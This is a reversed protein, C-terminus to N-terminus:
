FQLLFSSHLFFFIFTSIAINAAATESIDGFFIKFLFILFSFKFFIIKLFFSSINCLIPDRLFFRGLTTIPKAASVFLMILFALFFNSSLFHSAIINFLISLFLLIKPSSM